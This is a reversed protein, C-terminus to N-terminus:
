FDFVMGVRSNSLTQKAKFHRLVIKFNKFGLFIKFTYRQTSACITREHINDRFTLDLFMNALFLTLAIPGIQSSILESYEKFHWNLYTGVLSFQASRTVRPNVYALNRSWNSKQTNPAFNMLFYGKEQGSFLRPQRDESFLVERVQLTWILESDREIKGRSFNELMWLTNLM